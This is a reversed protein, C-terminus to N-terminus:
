PESTRSLSTGLTSPPASLFKVLWIGSPFMVFTKSRTRCKGFRWWCIRAWPPTVGVELVKCQKKGLAAHPLLQYWCVDWPLLHSASRSPRRLFVMKEQQLMLATHNQAGFVYVQVVPIVSFVTLMESGRLCKVKHSLLIYCYHVTSSIPTAYLCDPLIAELPQFSFWWIPPSCQLPQVPHGLSPSQPIFPPSSTSEWTSPMASTIGQCPSPHPNTAASHPAAQLPQFMSYKLSFIPLSSNTSTLDPFSEMGPQHIQYQNQPWHLHQTDIVTSPTLQDAPCLCPPSMNEALSTPVHTALRLSGQHRGAPFVMAKFKPQHKWSLSAESGGAEPEKGLHTLCKIRQWAETSHKRDGPLRGKERRKVQSNGAQARPSMWSEPVVEQLFGWHLFSGCKHTDGWRLAGTSHSWENMTEPHGTDGLLLFHLMKRSRSASFSSLSFVLLSLNPGAKHWSIRQSSDPNYIHQVVLRFVAMSTRLYWSHVHWRYWDAKRSTHSVLHTVKPLHGWNGM